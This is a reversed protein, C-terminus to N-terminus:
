LHTLNLYFTWSYVASFFFFLTVLVGEGLKHWGSTPFNARDFYFFQICVRSIWYVAIFATVLTALRSGNTLDEYVFVSLFGFSFNFVLIYCAYTYFIQKILPQVKAMESSWNLLKPIVVSGAALCIQGIGALFILQQIGIDSLKM